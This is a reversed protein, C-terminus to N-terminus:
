LRHPSMPNLGQDEGRRARNVTTARGRQGLVRLDTRESTSGIAAM